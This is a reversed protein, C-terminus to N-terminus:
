ILIGIWVANAQHIYIHNSVIHLQQQILGRLLTGGYILGLLFRCEYISLLTLKEKM